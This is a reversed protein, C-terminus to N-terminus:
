EGDVGGSVGTECLICVREDGPARTKSREHGCHDCDGPEYELM